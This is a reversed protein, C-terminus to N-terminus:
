QQDTVPYGLEALKEWAELEVAGALENTPAAQEEEEAYKQLQNPTVVNGQEDALGYEQLIEYARADSLSDMASGEKSKARDALAKAGVAAGTSLALGGGILAAKGKHAKLGAAGKGALAKLREALGKKAEPATETSLAKKLAAITEGGTTKLPADGVPTIAGGVTKAKSTIAGGKPVNPDVLTQPGRSPSTGALTRGGPETAKLAADPDVITRARGAAVKQISDLENWMSHAVVQGLFKAEEFKAEAMKELDNMEGQEEPPSQGDFVQGALAVYEDDNLSSLDINENEAIKDLMVLQAMKELEDSDQTPEPATQNTGFYDALFNDM